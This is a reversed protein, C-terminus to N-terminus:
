LEMGKSPSKTRERPRNMTKESPGLRNKSQDVELAKEYLKKGLPTAPELEIGHKVAMAITQMQFAPSGEFRVPEGFRARAELLSKETVAERRERAASGLGIIARRTVTIKDGHDYILPKGRQDAMLVEPRQKRNFKPRADPSPSAEQQPFPSGAQLPSGTIKKMDEAIDGASEVQPAKEPEQAKEVSHKAAVEQVEPDLAKDPRLTKEAQLTKSQEQEQQKEDILGTLFDFRDPAHVGYRARAERLTELNAPEKEMKKAAAIAEEQTAFNLTEVTMRNDGNAFLAHDNKFTRNVQWSKFDDGEMPMEPTMRTGERVVLAAVRVESSFGEPVKDAGHAAFPRYNPREVADLSQEKGQEPATKKVDAAELGERDAMEQLEAAKDSSMGRGAWVQQQAEVEKDLWHAKPTMDNGADLGQAPSKVQLVREWDKNETIADAMAQYFARDTEDHVDSFRNQARDRFSEAEDQGLTFSLPQSALDGSPLKIDRYATFEIANSEPTYNNEVEFGRNKSVHGVSYQTDSFGFDKKANESPAVSTVTPGAEGIDKIVSPGMKMVRVDSQAEPTMDNGANTREAARPEFVPSKLNAAMDTARDFEELNDGLVKDMASRHMPDKLNTGVIEQRITEAMKGQPIDTTPSQEPEMNPMLVRVKLGEDGLDEVQYKRSKYTEMVSDGDRKEFGMLRNNEIATKPLPPPHHNQIPRDPTILRQTNQNQGPLSSEIGAGDLRQIGADKAQAFRDRLADLSVAKRIHGAEAQTLCEIGYGWQEKAFAQTAQQGHKSYISQLMSERIPLHLAGEHAVGVAAGLVTGEHSQIFGRLSALTGGMTLTDDLLIYGANRNIVGDFKPHVVMRHDSGSGTRYSRTVQLVKTEMDWGLQHALTKAFAIPICNDGASEEALVPLLVPHAHQAGLKRVAEVFDQCILRDALNLASEEDGAKAALYEPERKLTGLDGNRLVDPFDGWPYRQPKINQAIHKNVLPTKDNVTKRTAESSAHVTDESHLQNESPSTVVKTGPNFPNEFSSQIPGDQELLPKKERLYEKRCLSATKVAYYDESNGIDPIGPDLRIMAFKDRDIGYVRITLAGSGAQYIKNYKHTVSSVFAEVSEFGAHRIQDGHRQEIHQLDSELLRIPGSQRGIIKAADKPIYGFDVADDPSRVFM